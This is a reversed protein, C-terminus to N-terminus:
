EAGEEGLYFKVITGSLIFNALVSVIIGLVLIWAVVEPNFKTIVTPGQREVFNIPFEIMLPIFIFLFTSFFNHIYINWSDRIAQGLKKRHWIVAPTAYIFFGTYIVGLALCGMELAFERKPSGVVMGKFLWFPVEMVWIVLLRLIGLVFLMWYRSLALKIGSFFSIRSQTFHSCFMFVAAGDLLVGVILGLILNTRNFLAPLLIFFTPYHLIAEGYSKKLLPLFIGAAVGSPFSVLILLIITQFLGYIFFPVWLSIRKFSRFTELYTLIFNNVKDLLRM